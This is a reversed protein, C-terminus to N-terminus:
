VRYTVTVVGTFVLLQRLHEQDFVPDIKASLFRAGPVAALRRDWLFELIAQELAVAEACDAPLNGTLKQQVGIDVTITGARATRSLAQPEITRPVVTVTMASLDALTAAPIPKVTATWGSALGSNLEAAVADAIDFATSM